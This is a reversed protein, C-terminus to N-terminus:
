VEEGTTKQSPKKNKPSEIQSDIKENIWELINRLIELFRVEIRTVDEREIRENLSKLWGDVKIKLQKLLQIYHSEQEERRTEQAFVIGHLGERSGILDCSNIPSFFFSAVIVFLLPYFHVIKKRM